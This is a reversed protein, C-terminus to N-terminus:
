FDYLNFCKLQPFLLFFFRHINFVRKKEKLSQFREFDTLVSKRKREELKKAWSSNNWKELINEKEFYKRVIPSGSGRPM